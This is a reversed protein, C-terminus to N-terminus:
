GRSRVLVANKTDRWERRLEPEGVNMFSFWREVFVRGNKAVKLVYGKFAINEGPYFEILDNKQFASMQRDKAEAPSSQGQQYRFYLVM